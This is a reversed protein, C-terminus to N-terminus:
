SKNATDYIQTKKGTIEHNATMKSQFGTRPPLKFDSILSNNVQTGSHSELMACLVMKGKEYTTDVTILM